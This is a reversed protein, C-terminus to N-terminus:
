VLVGSTIWQFRMAKIIISGNNNRTICNFVALMLFPSQLWIEGKARLVEYFVM